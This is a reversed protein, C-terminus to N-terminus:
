KRRNEKINELYVRFLSLRKCNGIRLICKRLKIGKSMKKLRFYKREEIEAQQFGVWKKICGIRYFRRQEYEGGKFKYVFRIM